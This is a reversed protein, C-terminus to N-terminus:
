VLWEGDASWCVRRVTMEDIPTSIEALAKLAAGDEPTCVQDIMARTLADGVDLWGNAVLQKVHRFDADTDIIDLLTNGAELGITGLVKGKGIECARITVVPPLADAIAQTDQMARLEAPLALIDDILAM